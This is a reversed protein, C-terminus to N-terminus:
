WAYAEPASGGPGPFIADLKKLVEESLKIDVAKLSSEFQGLTGPGIIPATVVPNHLLWALAVNSESEGTEACLKSYDELQARKVTDLNQAAQAARGSGQVPKLVNGSLFGGGLPSWPIVGLGLELAAPLLELEPLRCVLNYKHQESVLGLFCRKEAAAQAYALHRAGFNSAGIYYTKGQNVLAEFAGWIEDWVTHREIHHMQYLEVHDTKLRRLSAEIHRRIKYASLGREGNPGDNADQMDDYVKTALVVKERRNGGQAFWKGLIEETLGCHESRGYGNATDFFNIGADLARDMIAFSEKEDTRTGFNMTGLCLRSVKLGTRGLYTYTM